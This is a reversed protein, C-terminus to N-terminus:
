FTSLWNISNKNIESLLHEDNLNVGPPILFEFPKGYENLPEMKVYHRVHDINYLSCPYIIEMLTVEYDGKLLIQATTNNPYIDMSSNSPLTVYISKVVPLVTEYFWSSFKDPYRQWLVLLLQRNVGKGKRKLVKDIKFTEPLNVKQLVMPYFRGNITEGGLEELEYLPVVNVIKLIERSFNREFGKSFMNKEKTIRNYDVVQKAYQENVEAPTMKISSHWTNNYAQLMNDLEDVYRNTEKYMFYRWM